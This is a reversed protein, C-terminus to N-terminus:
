TSVSKDSNQLLSLGERVTLSALFLCRKLFSKEIVFLSNNEVFPQAVSLLCGSKLEAFALAGLFPAKCFRNFCAFFGHLKPGVILDTPCAERQKVIAGAVDLFGFRCPRLRLNQAPAPFNHPFLCDRTM